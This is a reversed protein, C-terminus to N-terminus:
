VYLGLGGYKNWLVGWMKTIVSKKGHVVEDHSISLSFKESYHYVMSFTILNHLYKRYVPDLSLYRLTENLWGMTWKL